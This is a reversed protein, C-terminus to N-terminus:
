SPRTHTVALEACSDSPGRARTCSSPADPRQRFGMDPVQRHSSNLINRGLEITDSVIASATPLSGAGQGYLMVPGLARAEIHVANFAGQVSALMDEAKVLMPAVCAEVGEPHLRALALPKICYGFAEAYAM